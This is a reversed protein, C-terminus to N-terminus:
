KGKARVPCGSGGRKPWKWGKKLRHTRQNLGTCKKGGGKKAM